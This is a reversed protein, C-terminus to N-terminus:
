TVSPPPCFTVSVAAVTVPPASVSVAVLSATSALPEVSPFAADGSEESVALALVVRDSTAVDTVDVPATERVAVPTPTGDPVGASVSVSALTDPAVTVAFEVPANSTDWVLESVPWCLTVRVAVVNSVTHCDDTPALAPPTVSVAWPPFRM